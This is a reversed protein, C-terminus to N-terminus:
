TMGLDASSDPWVRRRIEPSLSHSKVELLRGLLSEYGDVMASLSRENIVRQRGNSGLKKGLKPDELLQLTAAIYGDLDGAAFLLGTQGPEVTEPVSGVEVAVVPVGCSLAELISVPSAENHSTLALVDIAGLLAPVDSRSGLLHTRQAIGLSAALQEITSRQPGDGIILFHAEPLKDQIAAAGALFLEHNKEPRLAALIGVVPSSPPIGLENRIALGDCPAFRETDVGNYITHVKARPFREHDVLHEAHADAVGIFGDTLPTLLQNLRGISDPWGTSHLASVVVPVGALRAALRGGFMKDGAGVTVVADIQRSRMLRWLRTLVSPDYKNELLHCYVPIESALEEGLPGREKLCAIEPAFRARDFGRVLNVLLTEAGGVPMSTTLFMVRIRRDRTATRNTNMTLTM